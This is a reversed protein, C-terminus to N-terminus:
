CIASDIAHWLPVGDSAVLGHNNFTQMIASLDPSTLSDDYRGAPIGPSERFLLDSGLPGAPVCLPM